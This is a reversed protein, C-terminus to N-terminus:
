ILFTYCIDREKIVTSPLRLIPRELDYRHTQPRQGLLEYAQCDDCRAVTRTDRGSAADLGVPARRQSRRCGWPQLHSSKM